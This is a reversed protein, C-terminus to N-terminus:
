NLGWQRARLASAEHACIPQGAVAKVEDRNLAAGSRHGLSPRVPPDNRDPGTASSISVKGQAKRRRWEEEGLVIAALAPRSGSLQRIRSTPASAIPALAGARRLTHSLGRM